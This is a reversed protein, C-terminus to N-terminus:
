YRRRHRRSRRELWRPTCRRLPASACSVRVSASSAMSYPIRTLAMPTPSTTVLMRLSTTSSPGPKRALCPSAAGDATGCLRFFNGLEDRKERGFPGAEHDTRNDHGVAAHGHGGTSRDIVWLPAWLMSVFSANKVARGPCATGEALAQQRQDAGCPLLRAADTVVDVLRAVRDLTPENVLVPVRGLGKVSM